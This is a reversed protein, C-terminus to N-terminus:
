DEWAPPTWHKSSLVHTRLYGASPYTDTDTKIDNERCWAALSDVVSHVKPQAGTKRLRKFMDAAEAQIKMKWNTLPPSEEQGEDGGAMPEPAVTDAQEPVNIFADALAHVDYGIVRCDDLVTVFDPEDATLQWRSYRYMTDDRIEYHDFTRWSAKGANALAQCASLPLTPIAGAPAPKGDNLLGDNARCPETKATRRIIARLPIEGRSGARLIDNQTVETGAHKTAMSAAEALTLIDTDTTRGGRWETKPMLREFMPVYFVTPADEAPTVQGKIPMKSAFDFLVLEGASIATDLTKRWASHANSALVWGPASTLREDAKVRDDNAVLALAQEDTLSHFPREIASLLAEVQAFEFQAFPPETRLHLQKTKLWALLDPVYILNSGHEREVLEHHFLIDQM